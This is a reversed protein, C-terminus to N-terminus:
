SQSRIRIRNFSSKIFVYTSYTKLNSFGYKDNHVTWVNNFMKNECVCVKDWVGRATEYVNGAYCEFIAMSGLETGELAALSGLQANLSLPCMKPQCKGNTSSTNDDTSCSHTPSCDDKTQFTQAVTTTLYIYNANKNCIQCQLIKPVYM